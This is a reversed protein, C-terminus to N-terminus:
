DMGVAEIKALTRRIEQEQGRKGRPQLIRNRRIQTNLHKVAEKAIKEPGEAKIVMPKRKPWSAKEVAETTANDSGDIIMIDFEMNKDELMAMITPPFKEAIHTAIGGDTLFMYHTKGIKRDPPVPMKTTEKLATVIGNRDIENDGEGSGSQLIGGLIRKEQEPKMLPSMIMQPEGGQSALAYIRMEPLFKAAEKLIISLLAIQKAPTGHTSGTLDLHLIVNTITPVEEPLRKRWHLRDEKSIRLGSKERIKRDIITDLLLGQTGERPDPLLQRGPIKAVQQKLIITQWTQSLLRIHEQCVEVAKEYTEEGEPLEPLADFIDKGGGSAKIGAKIQRERKQAEREREERLVRKQERAKEESGKLLKGIEEHTKTKEEEGEGKEKGKEEEEGAGKAKGEGEGEKGQEKGEGEKGQEKGEGEKGQEKGEGKEQGEMGQIRPGKGPKSPGKGLAQKIEEQIEKLKEELLPMLYQDFIRDYQDRRRDWDTQIAQEMREPIVRNLRTTTLLPQIRASGEPGMTKELLADTEEEKQIGIKEWVEPNEGAFKHSLAHGWAITKLRNTLKSENSPGMVKEITKRISKMLDSAEIETRVVGMTVYNRLNAMLINQNCNEGTLEAFLNVTCDELYQFAQERTELEIEKQIYQTAEEPSIEEKKRTANLEEVLREMTKTRGKTLISHGIEHLLIARCNQLGLVLSEALDMNITQRKHNFWSGPPGFGIRTKPNGLFSSCLIAAHEREDLIRPHTQIPHIDIKEEAPLQQNLILALGMVCQTHPKGMEQETPLEKGETGVWRTATLIAEHTENEPHNTALEKLQAIIEERTKPPPLNRDQTQTHIARRLMGLPRELEAEVFTKM